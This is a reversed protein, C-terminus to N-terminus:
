VGVIGLMCVDILKMQLAQIKEEMEKVVRQAEQVFCVYLWAYAIYLACM